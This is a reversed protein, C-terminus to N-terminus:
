ALPSSGNARPKGPLEKKLARRKRGFAKKAQDVGVKKGEDFEIGEHCSRCIPKIFRLRKGLLDNRHYRNHHLETAPKGCLCCDHGAIAYVKARISKWLDSALYEAYSAFGIERLAMARTQYSMGVKRASCGYKERVARGHAAAEKGFVRCCKRCYAKIKGSRKADFAGDELTQKCRSCTRM